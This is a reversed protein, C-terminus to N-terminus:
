ADGRTTGAASYDVIIGLEDRRCVAGCARCRLWGAGSHAVHDCSLEIVVISRRRKM